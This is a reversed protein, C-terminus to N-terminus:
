NKMHKFEEWTIKKVPHAPIKKKTKDNQQKDQRVVSDVFLEKLIKGIEYSGDHQDVIGEEIKRLVNLFQYLIKVDLQDKLLRNFINTYHNFLFSCQNTIIQRYQKQNTKALRSYKKKLNSMRTIDEYLKKSHKLKRILETTQPVDNESVMKDINLRQSKDM